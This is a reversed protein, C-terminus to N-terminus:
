TGSPLGAKRLASLWAKRNAPHNNSEEFRRRIAALSLAPQIARVDAIATRAREMENLSAFNAARILHYLAQWSPSTIVGGMERAADLSAKHEGLHFLIHAKYFLMMEMRVDRPSLRIAEEIQPLARKQERFWDLTHALEVRITADNPNLQAARDLNAIAREGEGYLRYLYGLAAHAVGDKPDLRIASRAAGLAVELVADPNPTWQYFVQTGLARALLSHPAAFTADKAIALRALRIAEAQRDATYISQAHKARLYLDWADLDATPVDRRREIQATDIESLLQGAIASTIEDQIAFIDDIRSDFRQAWLTQGTSADVLQVNVRIRGESRQISGEVLEDVGLERGVLEVAVDDDQYRQTSGLGIVFLQRQLSLNTILAETIGEVFYDDASDPSLNKFPLVAVSPKQLAPEISAPIAGPSLHQWPQWWIAAILLGVTATVIAARMRWAKRPRAPALPTVPTVLALANDDWVLKFVRVPREINKVLVDGLDALSVKLTDRIQDRAARSLSIGGPEALSEIRAAINVGEGYIDDDEIIVDGLNIGIRFVIPQGPPQCAAVTCMAHQVDIAFLTAEVVSGFELLAGDGMLKRTRGHHQAAKPEILTHWVARLARVTNTEDREVLAAYGVVDLAVVAALRRSM